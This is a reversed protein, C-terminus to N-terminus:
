NKNGRGSVIQIYIQKQKEKNTRLKDKDDKREQESDKRLVGEFFCTTELSWDELQNKCKLNFLHFITLRFEKKSIRLKTM